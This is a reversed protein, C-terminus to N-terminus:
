IYIGAASSKRVHTRNGGGGGVCGTRVARRPRSSTSSRSPTKPRTIHREWRLHSRFSASRNSVWRLTVGPHRLRLREAVGLRDLVKAFYVGSAGGKAPDAYVISKAALSTGKPADVSGIDPKPAGARVAYSSALNVISGSAVRGQGRLEDLAARSLMM